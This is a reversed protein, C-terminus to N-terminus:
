ANRSIRVLAERSSVTEADPGLQAVLRDHADAGAEVSEVHRAAGLQALAIRALPEPADTFVGIRVRRAALARLAATAEGNPRLFVPAREEAFRELAVRWDGVGTEAWRDLAEAAAGRDDPLSMPDLPAIAALRRAVDTLFEDWLGHTDGLAADLDIAVARIV